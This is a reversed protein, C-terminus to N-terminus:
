PLDKNPKPVTPDRTPPAADDQAKDQAEEDPSTATESPLEATSSTASPPPDDATGSPEPVTGTQEPVTGTQEPPTGAEEQATSTAAQAPATDAEDAALAQYDDSYAQLLKVLKFGPPPFSEDLQGLLDEYRRVSDMVDEGEVDDVMVPYKDFVIAWRDWAEEYLQRSKVLDTADFAQDAQRVLRRAELTNEEQEAICRTRWYEFNVIDRYRRIIRALEKNKLITQAFKTAEARVDEPAAAAIEEPSLMLKETVQRALDSQKRDRESQPIDLVAREEDTLNARKEEILREEIGTTISQLSRLASEAAEDVREYDNLHLRIGYSSLIDRNGYETWARQANRWAIRAKQDLYGDEEIADAFNILAKAPESFFVLPNKGRLPSQKKDVVPNKGMWYRTALRKIRAGRDVALEARKFWQHAVMWNDPKADPGRVDDLRIPLEKHFDDDDRFLRRFQRYEDARGLKHGFFWGAESLLLPEDANYETGEILYNVGKKVWHYRHKYNDFEVSVNYAINWAQFQWVSVFNPQLKTIQNLTAMFSDWNETKKYHIARDWLLNAAVGGLGLTALSMTASAPDIKGLQAQSLKHERRMRSLVGGGENRKAAPASLFSIPILLAAIAVLYAVKRSFTTKRKM